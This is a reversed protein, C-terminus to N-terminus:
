DRWWLKLVGVKANGASTITVALGGNAIREGYVGSAIKPIAQESNETDRLLLEGGAMDVGDDDLLTINYNDTPATAGPNTIMHFLYKGKIRAKDKEDFNYTVHGDADDSLWTVVAKLVKASEEDWKITAASDAM